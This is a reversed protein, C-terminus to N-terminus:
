RRGTRRPEMHLCTMENLASLSNARDLEAAILVAMVREVAIARTSRPTSKEKGKRAGSEFSEPHQVYSFHYVFLQCRSFQNRHRSNTTAPLSSIQLRHIGGKPSAASPTSRIIVSIKIDTRFTIIFLKYVLEQCQSGYLAVKM